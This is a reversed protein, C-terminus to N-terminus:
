ILTHAASLNTPTPHQRPGGDTHVILRGKADCGYREHRVQSTLTMNQFCWKKNCTDLKLLINYLYSLYLDKM